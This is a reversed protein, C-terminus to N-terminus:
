PRVGYGNDVGIIIPSGSTNTYNTNSIIAMFFDNREAKTVEPAPYYHTFFFPVCATYRKHISVASLFEGTHSKKHPNKKM